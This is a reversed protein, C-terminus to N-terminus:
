KKNMEEMEKDTLLDLGTAKVTVTEDGTKIYNPLVKTGKGFKNLLSNLWLKRGHVVREVRINTWYDINPNAEILSYLAKDYTPDNALKSTARLNGRKARWRNFAARLGQNNDNITVKADTGQQHAVLTLQKYDKVQEKTVMINRKFTLTATAKFEGRSIAPMAEFVVPVYNTNNVHYTDLCSTLGLLMVPLFFLLKKM